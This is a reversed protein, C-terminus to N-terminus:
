YLSKFAKKLFNAVIRALEDATIEHWRKIKVRKEVFILLTKRNATISAWVMVFHSKPVIKPESINKILNFM